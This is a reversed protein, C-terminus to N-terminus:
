NTIYTAPDPDREVGFSFTVRSSSPMVHHHTGRPIYVCEGPSFLIPKEEAFSNEVKISVDGLVQVLFVDMKDKHWPYSDTNKGFGMFTILSIENKHFTAQMDAIVNKAWQALSGRRHAAKLFYRLKEPHVDTLGEPHSDLFTIQDSWNQQKDFEVKGFQPKKDKINQKNFKM